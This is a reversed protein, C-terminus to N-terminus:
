GKSSSPGLRLGWRPSLLLLRLAPMPPAPSRGPEPHPSQLGEALRSQEGEPTVVLLPTPSVGSLALLGKRQALLAESLTLSALPPTPAAPLSSADAGRLLSPCSRGWGCHPQTPTWASPPVTYTLNRDPHYWGMGATTGWLAPLAAPSSGPQPNEGPRHGRSHARCSMRAGSRAQGLETASDRVWCELLRRAPAPLSGPLCVPWAM